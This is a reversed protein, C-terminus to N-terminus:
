DKAGCELCKWMNAALHWAEIVTIADPKRLFAGSDEHRVIFSDGDRTLTIAFNHILGLDVHALQESALDCLRAHEDVEPGAESTFSADSIM